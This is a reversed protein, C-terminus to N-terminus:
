ISAKRGPRPRCPGRLVRWIAMVLNLSVTLMINTGYAPDVANISCASHHSLPLASALLWLIPLPQPQWRRRGAGGPNTTPSLTIM